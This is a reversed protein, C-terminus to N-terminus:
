QELCFMTEKVTYKHLCITHMLQRLSFHPLAICGQFCGPNLIQALSKRVNLCASMGSIYHFGPSLQASTQSILWVSCAAIGCMCTTNCVCMYVGYVQEQIQGHHKSHYMYTAIANQKRHEKDVRKCTLSNYTHNLPRTQSRINQQLFLKNHWFETHELNWENM